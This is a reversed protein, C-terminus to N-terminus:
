LIDWSSLRGIRTSIYVKFYACVCLCVSRQVHKICTNYGGVRRCCAESLENVNTSACTAIYINNYVLIIYYSRESCSTIHKGPVHALPNRRRRVQLSNLWELLATPGPLKPRPNPPHGSPRASPRGDRARVVASSARAFLVFLGRLLRRVLSRAPTFCNNYQIVHARSRRRYLTHAIHLSYHDSRLAGTYYM